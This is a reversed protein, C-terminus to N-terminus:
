NCYDWVGEHDACGADDACSCFQEMEQAGCESDDDSEAVCELYWEESDSSCLDVDVDDCLEPGGDGDGAADDDDTDDDGEPDCSSLMAFVTYLCLIVILNFRLM